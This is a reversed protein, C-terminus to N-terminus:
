RAPDRAYQAVARVFIRDAYDKVDDWLGAGGAPLLRAAEAEWLMRDLRGLHTLRTLAADTLEAHLPTATGSEGSETENLRAYTFDRGLWQALNQALAANEVIDVFDFAALRARAAALLMGDDRPEIFRDNPIRDDPWLLMRVAMNDTQCAVDADNLYDYLPAHAREVIRAWSGWGRMTVPTQARWYRWLSLLRVRPERLVTMFQAEPYYRTLTSHSFHGHLFDADRPLTTGDDFITMRAGDSFSGFDSFGGFMVRDFGTLPRLPRLTEILGATLATGSTKAIHMFALPRGAAFGM